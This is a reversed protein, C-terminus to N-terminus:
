NGLELLPASSESTSSSLSSLSSASSNKKQHVKDVFPHLMDSYLANTQPQNTLTLLIPSMMTYDPSSSVQCSTTSPKPNSFSPLYELPSPSQNRDRQIHSSSESDEM